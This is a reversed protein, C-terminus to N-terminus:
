RGLGLSRLIVLAAGLVAILAVAGIILRRRNRQKQRRVRHEAIIPGPDLADAYSKLAAIAAAAGDGLRARMHEDGATLHNRLATRSCDMARAMHLEDLDDVRSLMWAELPQRPMSLATSLTKHALDNQGAPLPAPSRAGAAGAM